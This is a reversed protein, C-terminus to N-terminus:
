IILLILILFVLRTTIVLSKLWGVSRIEQLAPRLEKNFPIQKDRFLFM